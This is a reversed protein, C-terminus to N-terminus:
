SLRTPRHAIDDICRRIDAIERAFGRRRGGLEPEDSDV